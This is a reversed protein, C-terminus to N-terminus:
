PGLPDRASGQGEKRLVDHPYQNNPAAATFM